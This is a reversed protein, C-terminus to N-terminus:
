HPILSITMDKDYGTQSRTPNQAGRTKRKVQEEVYQMLENITITYDNNYDAKGELGQLLYYSFVGHNFEPYEQSVEGAASATFVVIGEKTKSLDTLYQNILNQETVGLGRTTFNVSISGSHCADAFVIVRKATIHRALVTQIDWMPFATTGLQNPDSDNTLLYTNQLRGPEPAGHGAFYIIVLDMDIAQGLFNILADKINPLTADKNLLIRLHDNDYGGGEPRRLFDAFSQADNDAYKLSPIASNGYESVGVVVAWKQPGLSRDRKGPSTTLSVGTISSSRRTVGIIKSFQNGDKGSVSLQIQNYGLVLPVEDVITDGAVAFGPVQGSVIDVLNRSISYSGVDFWAQFKVPASIMETELNNLPSIVDVAQDSSVRQIEGKQTNSHGYRDAVSIAFPILGISDLKLIARFRKASKMGAPIKSADDASIAKLAAPVGNLTVEKVENDDYVLGRFEYESGYAKAVGENLVAPRELVLTPNMTDPPQALVKWRKIIGKSTGTLLIEDNIFTAYTVNGDHETIVKVNARTTLDYIKIISDATSVIWRSKPDFAISWISGKQLYMMALAGNQDDWVYVYGKSTGAALYKSDPSYCLTSIGDRSDNFTSMLTMKDVSYKQVEGSSLGVAFDKATPKVAISLVEDKFDRLSGLAGASVTETIIVAKDSGGSFTWGEDQMVLTNIGQSHVSLTKSITGNQSNVLYIQGDAAGLALTQGSISFSLANVQVPLSAISAKEKLTALDYFKLVKDVSVVGLLNAKFSVAGRYISSQFAGVSQLQEIYLEQQSHAVAAIALITLGIILFIRRRM